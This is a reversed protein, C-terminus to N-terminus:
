LSTRFYDTLAPTPACHVAGGGGLLATLRHRITTLYLEMDAARISSEDTTARRRDTQRVSTFSAKKLSARQVDTSDTRNRQMLVRDTAASQCGTHSLGDRDTTNRVTRYQVASLSTGPLEM